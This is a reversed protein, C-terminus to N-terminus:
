SQIKKYILYLSILYLITSILFAFALGPLDFLTGLVATLVLLSGIRVIASYGVSTSEKAQLKAAIISTMALPIISFIMIQLSQVGSVYQPFIYEVIYPATFFIVIVIIISILIVFYSIKQQKKGSAEESLLFSHLAAPLVAIFFLIQLNFQYIGAITFGLLPVIVLKDVWRPLNYAADISFNHTLLKLNIQLSPFKKIKLILKFFEFSCIFNSIIIGGLIGPLEFLFFMTIPILIFLIGRLVSIKLYKKYRKLGILNYQNMVFMSLAFCLLAVYVDVLLLILSAVATTIVALVNVTNVLDSKEKAQYIISMYPFGFRSIISATGAISILYSLEGYKTPELLSAFVLFFIGQLGTSVFNGLGVYSFKKFSSDNTM